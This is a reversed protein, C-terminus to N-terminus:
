ESSSQWMERFRQGKIHMCLRCSSHHFKCVQHRVSCMLLLASRLVTPDLAQSAEATAKLSPSLGNVPKADLLEHNARAELRQAAALEAVLQKYPEEVQLIQWHMSQGFPPTGIIWM